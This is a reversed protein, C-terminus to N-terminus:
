MDEQEKKTLPPRVVFMFEEPFRYYGRLSEIREPALESGNSGWKATDFNGPKICVIVHRESHFHGLDGVRFPAGIKPHDDEYWDTNGYGNYNWKAPDPVIIGTKEQAYRFSQIVMFSCDSWGGAGPSVTVDKPRGQDYHWIGKNAIAINWFEAIRFQVKALDTNTAILGAEDQVIKRSYFDIAWEGAHPRGAPVRKTRIVKWFEKGYSGDRPDSKKRLGWKIKMDAVWEWLWRSYHQDFDTFDHAGLRAATRKLAEATPGKAKLPGEALGYPATWPFQEESLM